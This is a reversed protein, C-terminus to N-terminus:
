KQINIMGNINCNKITSASMITIDGTVKKKIPPCECHYVIGLPFTQFSILVTYYILYMFVELYISFM